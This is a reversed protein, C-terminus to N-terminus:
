QFIVLSDTLKQIAARDSLDFDIVYDLKIFPNFLENHYHIHTFGYQYDVVVVYKNFAIWVSTVEDGDGEIWYSLPSSDSIFPKIHEPRSTYTEVKCEKNQCTYVIGEIGDGVLPGFCYICTRPLKM